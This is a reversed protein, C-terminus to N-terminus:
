PELPLNKARWEPFGGRFWHVNKYGAAVAVKAAKYSKWCEAGNCAFILPVNRDSMAETLKFEDRSPDFDVEKKSVEKYPLLKAGKVHSKAYEESTRVDFFTANRRMLSVVDEADVVKAGPLLTPTFYGLTSVYNYDQNSTRELRSFDHGAIQVGSIMKADPSLFAKKVKAVLEVGLRGNVAISMAPVERSEFIVNGGNKALWNRAFRTDVAVLDYVGLTLGELASEHYRSSQVTKFHKKLPINKANIEGLALYTALSDDHPLGLRKGAAEELTAIRSEKLAIFTARETAPLRAVPEYGYRLASGVLHAPAIIVAYDGTRTRQLDRTLDQSFVVSVEQGIVQGLYQGLPLFQEIVKGANAYETTESTVGITQKAAIAHMSAAAGMALLTTAWIHPILKVHEGNNLAPV